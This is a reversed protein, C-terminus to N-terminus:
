KLRTQMEIENGERIYSKDKKKVRCECLVRQVFSLRIRGQKRLIILQQYIIKLALQM